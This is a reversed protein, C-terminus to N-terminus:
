IAQHQPEQVPAAAGAVDGRRSLRQHAPLLGWMQRARGQQHGITDANLVSGHSVQLCCGITPQQKCPLNTHSSTTARQTHQAEQGWCRSLQILSSSGVAM